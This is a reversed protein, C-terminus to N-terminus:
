AGKHLLRSKKVGLSDPGEKFSTALYFVEYEPLSSLFSTLLSIEKQHDHFVKFLKIIVSKRTAKM